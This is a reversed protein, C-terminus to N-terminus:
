AIPTFTGVPVPQDLIVTFTGDSNRVVTCWELPRKAPGREPQGERDFRSGHCPCLFGSADVEVRCGLHTCVTSIAAVGRQTVWVVIGDDPFPLRSGPEAQDLPGLELRRRRGVRPRPLVFQGAAFLLSTGAVTCAAATTGRLFQRRDVGAM